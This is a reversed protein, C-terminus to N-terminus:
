VLLQVFFIFVPPLSFRSVRFQPSRKKPFMELFSPGRFTYWTTVAVFSVSFNTQEVRFSFSFHKGREPAFILPNPPEAFRPPRGKPQRKEWSYCHIKSSPLWGRKMILLTWFPVQSALYRTGIHSSSSRHTKLYSNALFPPRRTPM